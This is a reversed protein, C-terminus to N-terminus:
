SSQDPDIDKSVIKEVFNTFFRQPLPHLPQHGAEHRAQKGTRSLSRVIGARARGPMGLNQAHLCIGKSNLHKPRERQAQACQKGCNTHLTPRCQRDDETGLFLAGPSKGKSDLAETGNHASACLKTWLFQASAFQVILARVMRHRQQM